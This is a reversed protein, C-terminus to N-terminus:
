KHHRLSEVNVRAIVLSEPQLTTHGIDYREQLHTQLRALIDQWDRMDEIVIHASLSIETSSLSWVHLDHVSSVGAITAMSHGIEATDLGTPVGELLVHGRCLLCILLGTLVQDQGIVAKGVEGRVAALADRPGAAQEAPLPPAPAALPPMDLPQLHGHVRVQPPSNTTIHLDSGSLELLRKLLDSLTVAM